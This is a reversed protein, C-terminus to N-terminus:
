VYKWLVFVSQLDRLPYSADVLRLKTCEEPKGNVASVQVISPM